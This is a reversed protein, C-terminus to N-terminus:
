VDSNEGGRGKDNGPDPPPGPVMAEARQKLVVNNVFFDEDRTSLIQMITQSDDGDGAGAKLPYHHMDYM